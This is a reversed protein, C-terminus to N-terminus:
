LRPLTVVFSILSLIFPVIITSVTWRVRRRNTKPTNLHDTASQLEIKPFLRNLRNIVFYYLSLACLDAFITTILFAAIDTGSPNKQAHGASQFLLTGVALAIFLITAILIAVLAARHWFTIRKQKELFTIFKRVRSAVGGVWTADPGQVSFYNNNGFLSDPELALSISTNSKYDYYKYVVRQIISASIVTDDDLLTATGTYTTGKTAIEINISPTNPLMKLQDDLLHALRRLDDPRFILYELPFGEYDIRRSPPPKAPSAPSESAPPESLVPEPQPLYDTCAETIVAEALADVSNRRPATVALEPLGSPYQSIRISRSEDWWALTASTTPGNALEAALGAVDDSTAMYAAHSAKLDRRMETADFHQNAFAELRRCLAWDLHTLTITRTIM